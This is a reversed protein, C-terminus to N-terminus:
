RDSLEKIAARLSDKVSLGKSQSDRRSVEAGPSSSTISGSARRAKETQEQQAKVAAAQKAKRAADAQAQQEALIMARVEPSAYVAYDYAADLDVKGDKLPIAAQGSTPDPTLLHGMLVRVKEFHPKDTAWRELEQQTRAANQEAFHQNWGSLQQGVQEQFGGLQQQLKTQNEELKNIYSQIAPPIAGAPQQGTQAQGNRAQGNKAQLQQQMQQWQQLAQPFFAQIIRRPDYKYSQILAPFAQDPNKALADFWSFLQTVAQGRTKGFQQITTAYPAIADDIEKYQDKLAKVGKEVDAERKLVEKRIKEPLKAWEAKSEKTWAAPAAQTKPVAREETGTAGVEPTEVGSDAEVEPETTEPETVEEAVEEDEPRETDRSRVEDRSRAEDFSKRLEDKLSLRERPAERSSDAGGPPTRTDVPSETNLDM